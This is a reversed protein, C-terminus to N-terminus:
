SAESDPTTTTAPTTTTVPTAVVAKTKPQSPETQTAVDAAPTNSRKVPASQSEASEANAAPKVEVVAAAVPAAKPVSVPTPTDAVASGAASESTPDVVVAPEAAVKISSEAKQKVPIEEAVVPAAPPPVETNISNAVASPKPEVVTVPEVAAVVTDVPAPQSSVPATPKAETVAAVAVDAQTNSREVQVTAAEDSATNAELEVVPVAAARPARNTPKKAAPSRRRGGSNGDVEVPDRESAAVPAAVNGNVEITPEVAPIVEAINGDVITPEAESQARQQPAEEKKMSKRRRRNDHDRGGTDSKDNGPESAKRPARRPESNATNTESKATKAAKPKQPRRESDDKKTEANKRSGKAGKPGRTDPKPERNSDRNQESDQRQQGRGQGGRNRGGGRRSRARPESAESKPEEKAASSGFLTSVLRSLFGGSTTTSAVEKKAQTRTPNSAARSEQRRPAAAQPAAVPSLAKVAPEERKLAVPPEIKQIEPEEVMEFSLAISETVGKDSQRTRQIDYNPSKMHPNPIVVIKTGQRTEIDNIVYRKENLLFTAVDVPLQAHIVGTREKMSEEEILRLVSLALSETGRITGQGDCQPCTHQSSEDLSTRLRQRSMELLGFRSIRGVQVRARDVKLADRVRNEVARQNRTPTMDIFDIVVLGGLDRLRLQRAIEDAAELNTNLATEEIDGGKTSRASNIDVAVLAETHDIVISGGSPLSVERKFASEIQSEIQYRTFLPVKDEYLKIKDINHPMVKSMFDRAMEYVKPHDIIMESIDTRLYDRIARVVLNGEQYILFPAKGNVAAQDIADSLQMLYNLDWQLEEQSKGVGATRVIVGMDDRIDLQNMVSRIDGRDDGEIRRSVGGARPNNPMLVLYRGALSLFTTLAAGKSGREEKKIQVVVEQGEKILEHINTRGSLEVEPDFYSRAIEKLPLFGHREAGYDVFAAELSAEVRTIKGKYINSKNQVSNASEIDLDYLRQGDVLAVRLEEPQTANFLMRKM